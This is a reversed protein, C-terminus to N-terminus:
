HAGVVPWYVRRAGDPGLATGGELSFPFYNQCRRNSAWSKSCSRITCSHHEPDKTQYYPMQHQMGDRDFAFPRFFSIKSETGITALFRASEGTFLCSLLAGESVSPKTPFALHNRLIPCNTVWKRFAHLRWRINKKSWIDNSMTEGVIWGRWAQRWRIQESESTTNVPFKVEFKRLQKRITAM